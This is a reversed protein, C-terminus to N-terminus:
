LTRRARATDRCHTRPQLSTQTIYRNPAKLKQTKAVFHGMFSFYKSFQLRFDEILYPNIRRLWIQHVDTTPFNVFCYGIGSFVLFEVIALLDHTLQACLTVVSIVKLPWELDDSIDRKSLACTIQLVCSKVNGDWPGINYWQWCMVLYQDLVSYKYVWMYKFGVYSHSRWVKAITNLVPFFFLQAIAYHMIPLFTHRYTFGNGNSM